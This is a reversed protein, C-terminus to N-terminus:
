ESRLIGLPKRLMVDWSSVIGVVIVIIATVAIGIFNIAPLFSWAIELAYKSLAWTLVIAAVSGILGALLGLLAYEVLTIQIILKKKAGLTKLIASEYLRHYKTMAISGVLILMGSLFIFGGVFTVITTVTNIIKKAANIIDLVDIVSVDPFKNFLERQFAGRVDTAQPARIATVFNQPYSELSGPRFLVFFGLRSNRWDVRRVSTIRATLPQDPVGSIEFTITDGMGVKLTEQIAEEISIEPETAPTNDWFKGALLTENKELGARYTVNYEREVFGRARGGDQPRQDDNENRVSKNNIKTIRMRALPVLEPQSGTYSAVLKSLEERQNKQINILYMDEAINFNGFSFENLLTTQLLRVSIIFFAGLGVALLIVRTQNGPRYLSTVGQRLPFSPIHRLQRLARILLSAALNLIFTTLALGVLFIAGIRLSGAQWGALLTLGTMVVVISIVRLWDIDRYNFQWWRRDSTTPTFESRLVINPKIRRIELLPVLSFLLSILLGILLGQVVAQWTLNFQVGAPLRDAFYKPLLWVTIQALMLGLLSGSIGLSMVQVLYTGLVRANDGGLCKLIAITKMKQQIFVRTVSSIGIGGLVLIVLGILSLYNEVRTLSDGLRNETNRYTRVTLGSQSKVSSLDAKIERAFNEAQGERVKFLTKYRARSGFGLIGSKLAEEHAIFVRSGVSFGNLTNGPESEIVGRVTFISTGIKIQDGTKLEFQTMLSSSCLAGQNQLLSYDYRQGDKLKMEGYLPFAQEVAKLETLKPTANANAVPKLMTGTEITETLALAQSHRRYKEFVAATEPRWSTDSSVQVDATILARAEKQVTSKVNQVLSRLAVISGVGMAICIFFFLLRHWSARMERWAMNLIFNM